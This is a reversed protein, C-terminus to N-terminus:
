LRYWLATYFRTSSLRDGSLASAQLTLAVRPTVPVQLLADLGHSVLAEGATLPSQQYRYGLRAYVQGFSRDLGASGYVGRRTGGTADQTWVTAYASLGVGVGPLRPTSLGGSFSLTSPAGETSASSADARLTLGSVTVAGGGGVRTSRGLLLQLDGLLLYPRRSQAFAHLRVGPAVTASVRGGLRSLVWDGTEPDQDVLLESSLSLGRAYATQLAGAFTRTRMGEARPLVQGGLATVEVRAGQESGGTPIEFAHHAFATYKPLEGSPAEDAYDPQFGAAVGAGRDRDGVHLLLGDWYGSFRDYRNHFRGARVEFPLSASGFAKEASLQYVRVDAPRDYPTPDSYRYATRLNADLRFGGPLNEVAARLAAFPQAFTRDFTPGDDTARTSSALGDVGIQLRGSIAPTLTPPRPGAAAQPQDLISPRDPEAPPAEAVPAPTPEPAPADRLLVLRDGLTLPFPDGAFAVVARDATASVVRLSGLAREDRLATLTDGTALGADTGADLYANQGAVYTVQAEIRAAEQAAAPAALLVLLLM